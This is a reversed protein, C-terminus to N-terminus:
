FNIANGYRRKPENAAASAMGRQQDRGALVSVYRRLTELHNQWDGEIRQKWDEHAHRETVPKNMRQEPSIARSNSQAFLEQSKQAPRADGRRITVSTM